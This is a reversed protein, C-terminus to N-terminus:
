VTQILPGLTTRVRAARQDIQSALDLELQAMYRKVQTDDLQRVADQIRLTTQRQEVCQRIKTAAVNIPHPPKAARRAIRGILRQPHLTGRHQEASQRDAEAEEKEVSALHTVYRIILDRDLHVKVEQENSERIADRARRAPSKAATIKDANALSVIPDVPTFYAETVLAAQDPSLVFAVKDTGHHLDRQVTANVLLKFLQEELLVETARDREARQTLSRRNAERAEDLPAFSTVAEQVASDAEREAAVDYDRLDEKMKQLHEWGEAIVHPKFDEQTPGIFEVLTNTQRLCYTIAAVPNDDEIAAEALIPRLQSQSPHPGQWAYGPGQTATSYALYCKKREAADTFSDEVLVVHGCGELADAIKVASEVSPDCVVARVEIKRWEPGDYRTDVIVEQVPNIDNEAWTIRLAMEASTPKGDDVPGKPSNEAWILRDCDDIKDALGSHKSPVEEPEEEGDERATPPEGSGEGGGSGVRPEPSTRPTSAVREVAVQTIPQLQPEAKSAKHPDAELAPPAEAGLIAEPPVGQGLIEEISLGPPQVVHTDSKEVPQVPKATELNATDTPNLYEYTSM